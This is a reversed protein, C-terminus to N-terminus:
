AEVQTVASSSPLLEGQLEKESDSIPREPKFKNIEKILIWGIGEPDKTRTAELLEEPSKGRRPDDSKWHSLSSDAMNLRRALEGTTLTQALSQNKQIGKIAIDIENIKKQLNILLDSKPESILKRLDSLEQEIKQLQEARVFPTSVEQAVNDAVGFYGALVRILAKSETLGEKDKFDHFVKFIHDPPYGAIRNKSPM